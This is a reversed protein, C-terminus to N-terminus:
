RPCRSRSGAPAIAYPDPPESALQLPGFGLGRLPGPSTVVLVLWSGFLIAGLTVVGRQPDMHEGFWDSAIRLLWALGSVILAFVLM